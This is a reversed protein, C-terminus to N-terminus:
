VACGNLHLNVVVSRVSSSALSSLWLGSGLWSGAWGRAAHGGVFKRALGSLGALLAVGAVACALLGALLQQSGAMLQLATISTGNNAATVKKSPRGAKPQHNEM